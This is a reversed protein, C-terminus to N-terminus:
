MVSPGRLWHAWVFGKKRMNGLLLLAAGLWALPHLALKVPRDNESGALLNYTLLGISVLAEM